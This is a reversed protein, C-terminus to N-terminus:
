QDGDPVGDSAPAAEPDQGYEEDGKKILIM